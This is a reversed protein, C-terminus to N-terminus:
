LYARRLNLQCLFRVISSSLPSGTSVQLRWAVHFDALIGVPEGDYDTLPRDAPTLQRPELEIYVRPLTPPPRAAGPERVSAGCASLELPEFGHATSARRRRRAASAEDGGAEGAEATAAPSRELESPVVASNHVIFRSGTWAYSM